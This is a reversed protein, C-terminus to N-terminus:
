NSEGGETIDRIVDPDTNTPNQWGSGNNTYHNVIGSGYTVTEDWENTFAASALTEGNLILGDEAMIATLSKQGASQYHAGAYEETVTVEAGIPIAKELTLEKTGASSFTISKVDSFVTKRNEGDGMTAEIRFVFFADDPGVAKSLTKTIKLDALRDEATPKLVAEVKYIWEGPTDTAVVGDVADKYPVTVLVPTYIFNKDDSHVISALTNPAGDEGDMEKWYDREDTRAILLYLGFGANVVDPDEEEAERKGVSLTAVKKLSEKRVLAAADQALRSWTDSTIKQESAIQGFGGLVEKLETKPETEGEAPPTQTEVWLPLDRCAEEFTFDFRGGNDMNVEAVRYIDVYVKVDKLAEKLEKNSDSAPKVTITPDEAFAAPASACVLCATLLLALLRRGWKRNVIMEM